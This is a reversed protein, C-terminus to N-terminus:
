DGQTEVAVIYTHISLINVSIQVFGWLYIFAM